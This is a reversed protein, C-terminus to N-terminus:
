KAIKYVNLITFITFFSYKKAFIPKSIASFSGGLTQTSHPISVGAGPPDVPGILAASAMSGFGSNAGTRCIIDLDGLPQLAASIVGGPHPTRTPPHQITKQHSM